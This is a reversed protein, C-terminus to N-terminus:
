FIILNIQRSRAVVVAQQRGRVCNPLAGTCGALAAAFVCAVALSAGRAAEVRGSLSVGVISRNTSNAGAGRESTASSSEITMETCTLEASTCNLFYDSAMLKENRAFLTNGGRQLATWDVSLPFDLTLAIQFLRM